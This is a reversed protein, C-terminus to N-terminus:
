FDWIHYKINVFKTSFHVPISFLPLEPIWPLSSFFNYSYSVAPFYIFGVYEIFLDEHHWLTIPRKIITLYPSSYYPCFHWVLITFSWNFDMAHFAVSSLSNLLAIFRVLFINLGVVYCYYKQSTALSGILFLCM